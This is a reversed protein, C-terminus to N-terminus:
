LSSGAVREFLAMLKGVKTLTEAYEEDPDSDAVLGGGGWCSIEGGTVELTRICLNSRLQGGPLLLLLTGCYAGRPGAELEDIIQMARVKPAGTVSGGPFCATLLDLANRGQALRAEIVSVLHHVHTHTEISFLKSVTVSGTEAVKGIDNRLLDVIMLNEARDKSSVALSDRQRTDELPDPARPRTGKIPATRVQDQQVGLFNEPSYSLVCTNGTDIFGAWPAQMAQSIIPHVTFPDGACAASFRHAFNVQYVDGARIYEQIRHFAAAYDAARTHQRFRGLLHFGPPEPSTSQTPPESLCATVADALAQADPTWLVTASQDTLEVACEYRGLWAHSRGCPLPYGIVGAWFPLPPHNGASGTDMAGADRWAQALSEITYDGQLVRGPSLGILAGDFGWSKGDLQLFGPGPFATRLRLGADHPCPLTRRLM